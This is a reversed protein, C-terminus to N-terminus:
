GAKNEAPERKKNLSAGRKKTGATPPLLGRRVAESEYMQVMVGPKVQIKVMRGRTEAVPMDHYRVVAM